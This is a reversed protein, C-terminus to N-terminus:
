KKFGRIKAIIQTIEEDSVVAGWPAMTPSLGVAAGGEKIVKAIHADDVSDQWAADTFNRPKPNMAAAAPGSATGDAGHCAVCFQAYKQEGANSQDSAQSKENMDNMALEKKPLSGDENLTPLEQNATQREESFKQHDARPDHQETCANCGTLTLVGFTALTKLLTKGLKM